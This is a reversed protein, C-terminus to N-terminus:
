DSMLGVDVLRPTFMQWIAKACLWAGVVTTSTHIM